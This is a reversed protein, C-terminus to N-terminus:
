VMTATMRSLLLCQLADMKCLHMQLLLTVNKTNFPNRSGTQVDFPTWSEKYPHEAVYWEGLHLDTEFKEEYILKLDNCQNM